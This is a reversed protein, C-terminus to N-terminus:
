EDRGKGERGKGEGGKGERGRGDRRRGERGTGERAERREQYSSRLSPAPCRARCATMIDEEEPSM